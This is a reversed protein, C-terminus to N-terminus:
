IGVWTQYWTQDWPVSWPRHWIVKLFIPFIKQLNKKSIKRNTSPRKRIFDVHQVSNHKVSKVVQQKTSLNKTQTSPAGNAHSISWVSLRTITLVFM